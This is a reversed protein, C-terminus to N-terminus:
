RYGKGRQNEKVVIGGLWPFLDQCSQLDCRWLSFTGVFEDDLLVVFTMPIDSASISSEIWSRWFKLNNDGWNAYIESFVDDFYQPVGIINKTILKM